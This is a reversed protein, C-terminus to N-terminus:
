TSEVKEPESGDREGSPRAGHQSRESHVLIWPGPIGKTFRSSFSEPDNHEKLRKNLDITHGIYLRGTSVSRIVYTWFVM